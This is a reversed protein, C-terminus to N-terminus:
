SKTTVHKLAECVYDINSSNIGSLSLRGDMTLYVSYTEKLELVKSSNLNTFYFMGHQREADLLSRWGLRKHMEARVCNLREVMEKVDEYWQQRLEPTELVMNVVRSGYGPPSSYLGRVIKKLQSDIKEKLENQTGQPIVISLSGVREGYLGMNKAFSQCLFLGNPWQYKTDELCLRLLHADHVLDGSEMGQYAMDIVPILQMEHIADILEVWEEKTPDLGTPNHCCAHLIICQPKTSKPVSNRLREIMKDIPVLGGEAYYPLKHVRQFGNREFINDHNPWSPDPIWVDTTLFQSLFNSAVALAGTGSLTQVFSVRNSSLLEQGKPGGCQNFLFELVNREFSKCGTIPLYSLDKNLTKDEDLIRQAQSVSRLTTVQGSDDKYIGATLDVKKPHPDRKFADSLGLIKDPPTLPIGRLKTSIRRLQCYNIWLSIRM